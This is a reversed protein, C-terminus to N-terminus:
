SKSTLILFIEFNYGNETNKFTGHDFLKTQLDYVKLRVILEFRPGIRVPRDAFRATGPDRIEVASTKNIKLLIQTGTTTCEIKIRDAM